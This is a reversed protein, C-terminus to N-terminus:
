SWFEKASYACVPVLIVLRSFLLWFGVVHGTSYIAAAGVALSLGIASGFFCASKM